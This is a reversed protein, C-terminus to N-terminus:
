NGGTRTCTTSGSRRCRRHSGLMAPTTPWPWWCRGCPVDLYHQGLRAYSRAHVQGMWGLGVVGVRLPSGKMGVGKSRDGAGAAGHDDPASCRLCVSLWPAAPADGSGASPRRRAWEPQKDPVAIRPLTHDHRRCELGARLGDDATDSLMEIRILDALEHHGLEPVRVQVALPHTQHHRVAGPGTRQRQQQLGCAIRQGLSCGGDGHHDCEAGVLAHVLFMQSSMEAVLRPERLLGIRPPLNEVVLRPPGVREGGQAGDAGVPQGLQRVTQHGVRRHGHPDVPMDGLGIHRDHDSRHERVLHDAEGATVLVEEGADGSGFQDVQGVPDSGQDGARLHDTGATDGRDPGQDVLRGGQDRRLPKREAQDDGGAGVGQVGGREAGGLVGPRGAGVDGGFGMDAVAFGRDAPHQRDHRGLVFVDPRGGLPEVLEFRDDGVTAFHDDVRGVDGLDRHHM